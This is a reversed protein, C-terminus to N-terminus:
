LLKLIFPGLIILLILPVIFLVSIISVKNPIKNIMAKTDMIQKERLFDIQNHISDVISNGFISTEVINLIINNITESPIRLRMNNLAEMLSRGFEVEKLSKKFELSLDGDVNYCTLKISNLLNKGSELTLELVEFFVLSERELKRERDKLPKTIYTYYYLFYYSILIFPIFIYKIKIIILLLLLLLTTLIQGTIFEEASKIKTKGLKNLKINIKEIDKERYLKNIIGFKM